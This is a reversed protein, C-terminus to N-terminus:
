ECPKNYVEDVSHIFAM